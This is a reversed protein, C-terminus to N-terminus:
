PTATLGKGGGGLRPPARRSSSSARAGEIRASRSAIWAARSAPNAAQLRVIRAQPLEM